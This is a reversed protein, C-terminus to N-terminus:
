RARDPLTSILDRLSNYDRDRASAIGTYEKKIPQLLRSVLAPSNISLLVRRLHEIQADRLTSRTVLLHESIEPTPALSRLGRHRYKEFVEQKVAGGDFDGSLVALAVNNHGRLHRYFKLQQLKVGAQLLMAQPVQSSMTSNPDGFAFSRGNFQQLNKLDSDQRVIIHGRFTPIGNSQMRGLIPKRGFRQHMKLYSVPGMFAIDVQNRGIAEIHTSYDQGVRVVVEIGLQDSLYRALPSFRKIVEGHPLYPHVGLVLPQQAQAQLTPYLLLILAMLTQALLRAPVSETMQQKPWLDLNAYNM